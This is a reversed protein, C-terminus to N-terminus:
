KCARLAQQELVNRSATSGQYRTMFALKRIEVMCWPTFIVVAHGHKRGTVLMDRVVVVHSPLPYERRGAPIIYQLRKEQSHTQVIYSEHPETSVWLQPLAPRAASKGSRARESRSYPIPAQQVPPSAPTLKMTATLPSPMVPDTIRQSSTLTIHSFRMAIVPMAISVVLRALSSWGNSVFVCLCLPQYEQTPGSHNLYIPISYTVVRRRAVPSTCPLEGHNRLEERLNASALHAAVMCHTGPTACDSVICYFGGLLGPRYWMNKPLAALLVRFADGHSRRKRCWSHATPSNIPHYSTYYGLGIGISNNLVRTIWRRQYNCAEITPPPAQAPM